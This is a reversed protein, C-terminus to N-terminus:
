SQRQRGGAFVVVALVVFFSLFMVACLASLSFKMAIWAWAPLSMKMTHITEVIDGRFILWWGLYMGGGLGTAILLFGAVTRLNYKFEGSM